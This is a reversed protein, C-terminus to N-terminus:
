DPDMADTLKPAFVAIRHQAAYLNIKVCGLVGCIAFLCLM